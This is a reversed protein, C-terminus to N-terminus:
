PRSEKIFAVVRRMDSAFAIRGAGAELLAVIRDNEERRGALHMGPGHAEDVRARGRALQDSM